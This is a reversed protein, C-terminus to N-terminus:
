VFWPLELQYILLVVSSADSAICSSYFALHSWPQFSWPGQSSPAIRFLGEQGGFFGDYEWDWVLFCTARVFDLGSTMTVIYHLM